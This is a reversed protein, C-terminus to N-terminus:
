VVEVGHATQGPQALWFRRSRRPCLQGRAVWPNLGVPTTFLPHRWSYWLCSVAWRRGGWHRRGTLPLPPSSGMLLVSHCCGMSPGGLPGPGARALGQGKRFIAIARIRRIARPQTSSSPAWYQWVFCGSDSITGGGTLLRNPSAENWYTSEM